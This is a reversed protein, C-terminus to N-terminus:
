IGHVLRVTLPLIYILVNTPGLTINDNSNVTNRNLICPSVSRVFFKSNKTADEMDLKSELHYKLLWAANHGFVKLIDLFIMM